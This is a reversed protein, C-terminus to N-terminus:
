SGAEQQTSPILRLSCNSHITMHKGFHNGFHIGIHEGIQDGM